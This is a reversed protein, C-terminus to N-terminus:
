GACRKQGIRAKLYAVSSPAAIAVVGKYLDKAVKSASGELKEAVEVVKDAGIYLIPELLLWDRIWMSLLLIAMEVEAANESDLMLLLNAQAAWHRCGVTMLVAQRMQEQEDAGVQSAEMGHLGRLYLSTAYEGLTIHTEAPSGEPLKWDTEDKSLKGCQTCQWEGSADEVMHGTSEPIDGISSLYSDPLCFGQVREPAPICRPCVLAGEMDPAACRKCGCVDVGWGDKLSSQREARPLLSFHLVDVELKEGPEIDRLAVYEYRDGSPWLDVNPSCSHTVTMPRCAEFGGGRSLQNEKVTESFVLEHQKFHRAACLGDRSGDLGAVGPHGSSLGRKRQSDMLKTAATNELYGLYCHFKADKKRAFEPDQHYAATKEQVWQTLKQRNVEDLREDDAGDTVKEQDASDM